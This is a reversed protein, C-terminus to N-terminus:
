YLGGNLDISVGNLYPTAIIFELTKLIEEPEGLRKAPITAILETLYENPVQEIMGIDFYGLNVNNITINKSANEICISKTLGWMAAKSAAYASTGAVGKQAVVSSFNIIRGYMDARMLPLSNNIMAFLGLVNVDIVEKWKVMDAKHGFANYSIGATNILVLSTLQDKYHKFFAIVEDENTIDIHYYNELNAPVTTHYFGIVDKGQSRFADFLFKGIGRSASTIVIM